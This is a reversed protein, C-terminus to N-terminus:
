VNRFRFIKEQSELINVFILINRKVLERHFMKLLEYNVNRDNHM